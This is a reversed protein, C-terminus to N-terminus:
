WRITARMGVGHEPVNDNADERRTAEVRFAFSGTNRGERTLRWGLSYDRGSESVGFGLEPTGTFRGGFASLGYGARVELSRRGLPDAAGTGDDAGGLEAMTDRGYLADVGGTASAGVTQRLSLSLGRDSSPSPDFALSGSFGVERFDSAEHGLLGRGQLDATVGSSPAAYAVGAGMEVGFGTEADGGDHRAGIGFSPTLTGRGESRFARTGELGLRLRTVETDTAELMGGGGDGGVEESASRVILGDTKAALEFGGEAPAEVLVGRLGAAAMALDMDTEIRAQGEPELTLTGQGYGAVGWATVRDNLAGRGWPYLGTLSSSVTGAGQGRYDGEGRSHGVMLGAAWDARAWDAGLLGTAVEGDVSLDGDRGDFGTVVGRGWVSVFGGEATGETRAFSTGTLLERGSITLLGALDTAAEAGSDRSAAEDFAGAAGVRRGVISVEVGAQRATTMRAEVADLVQGAVTRGFRGLWARPMADTNVITGTATGDAITAGFPRSLTLTMTEEGEDHADELVAVHVTKVTEGAEFRVVGSAAVYDAGATASGDSTVYRVSVASPREESLTVRFALPTGASENVRADAVTMAASGTPANPEDNDLVDVGASGADAAVAYGRGEGAAVTATVRGDAEATSDDETAVRLRTETENEGFAVATPATGALVSGAESVDVAVTLPVSADDTSRTLVFVADEGETVADAEAAITVVSGGVRMKFTRTVTTPPDAADTAGYTMRTVGPATPTGSLAGTSGDFSLGAPLPALTYTYPGTGGTAAPLTLDVTDGVEYGLKAPASLTMSSGARIRIKLPHKSAAFFGAADRAGYRLQSFGPATPTGSLRRTNGDFSLGAPLSSGDYPFSWDAGLPALAYTYPGTSGTAAPLTLDVTDGVEYVLRAPTSLTISSSRKRKKIRMTFTRTVTAPPNAADTAGYTVRTVGPATPTGSLTRTSEDFSLGAPLPALTYAYPGTGGNAAPLTLDVTDGAGYRVAKSPVNLTLRPEKSKKIRLNFTRTVTAPPDAADTAGYTVLTVGPVTPTGSLTRTSGDFSLGAPLPALTYAYPGTGGNAAPLTLDVTDGAGYRVAKSPVNLTLARPQELPPDGGIVPTDSAEIAGTATDDALTAASSPQPNSLTVEVTEKEEQIDDDVLDLTINASTEGPQFTVTGSTTGTYDAAQASVPTIAYDVSVAQWSAPSLTVPFVLDDSESASADAVSLAPTAENDSVGAEAQAPTGLDYADGDTLTLTLTADPEDTQDDTTPVAVTATTSNAGFTASTPPVGALMSGGGTVAFTVVLTGSVDTGSRTLTFRADEGETVDGESVITVVPLDDDDTITLTADDPGTVGQSNTATGSVTVTKDPADADNDTATITVSGTSTLSNAAITLRSGSLTYDNAVAPSVPAASVTVTTPQPSPKDLTATVTSTGGNEGISAPTLVLTVTPTENAVPQSSFAAAANGEEDQLVSGSGPVAYSVTVTEGAGVSSTLTLTVASGSVTVASVAHGGSVAFASAAPVSAEDLAENMTVTLVRGNVSARDFVVVVPAEAITGSLAGVVERNGDRDAFRVTVRVRKGQDDGVPTYTRSTAGAIDKPNSVGDADVRTWQYTFSPSSPLGDADEIGGTAATLTQGVQATGGLTLGTAFTNDTNHSTTQEYCDDDTYAVQVRLRRGEDDETPTYTRSTEGSILESNTGDHDTRFWQYTFSSPSSPVGNADAITTTDATLEVGITQSGTITVKSTPLHNREGVIETVFTNRANGDPIWGEAGPNRVDASLGRLFAWGGPSCQDTNGTFGVDGATGGTTRTIDVARWEPGTRNAVSWLYLHYTTSADLVTNAPADFRYRRGGVNTPTAFEALRGALAPENTIAHVTGSDPVTPAFAPPNTPNPNAKGRYLYLKVNNLTLPMSTFHLVVNRLPINGSGAPTTFPQALHFTSESSATGQTPGDVFFNGTGSVANSIHVQAQAAMPSMAAMAAACPLALCALRARAAPGPRGTGRVTGHTGHSDNRIESIMSRNERWHAGM